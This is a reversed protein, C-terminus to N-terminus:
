TAGRSTTAPVAPEPIDREPQAAVHRAALYAFTAAPGLTSGGSWYGAGAASAVCNGAGYLGPITTGDRRLVEGHATTKPGGNTDLVSGALIVCHYPGDDLPWMTPNKDNGVHAPGTWDLEVATEGRHFDEDVGSRALEGWRQVTRELETHFGPELRVNGIREGYSQLRADIADALEALTDGSIVWPQHPRPDPWKNPQSTDDDVIFDDYILFTLHNPRGGDAGREFHVKSREHYILKENVV